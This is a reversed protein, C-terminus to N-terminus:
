HRFLSAYQRYFSLNIRSLDPHENRCQIWRHMRRLARRDVESKFKNAFLAPDAMMQPLDDEGFVCVARVTKGHCTKPSWLTYRSIQFTLKGSVIQTCKKTYEEFSSLLGGPAKSSAQLTNFFLEDPVYTKELSQLLRRSVSDEIAYHMFARSFVGAVDGRYLELPVDSRNIPRDSIRFGGDVFDWEFRAKDAFHKDGLSEVAIANSGNLADLIHVLELNSKLPLEEGTMSIDYKWNYTATWSPLLLDKMCFIDAHLASFGGWVVVSARRSSLFVNEFCGAIASVAMFFAASAKAEVHICYLNQPAYIAHLLREVQEIDHYVKLNYALPFSAEFISRPKSTYKFASRFAVCNRALGVYEINNLPERNFDIPSYLCRSFSSTSMPQIVFHQQCCFVVTYLAAILAASAVIVGLLKLLKMMLMPASSLIM